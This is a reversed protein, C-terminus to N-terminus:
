EASDSESSAPEEAPLYLPGTQGCGACLCLLILSITLPLRRM